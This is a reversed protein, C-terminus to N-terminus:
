PRSESGDSVPLTEELNVEAWWFAVVFESTM